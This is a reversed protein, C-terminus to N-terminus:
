QSRVAADEALVEQAGQPPPERPRFDRYRPTSWIHELHLYYDTLTQARTSFHIALDHLPLGALTLQTVGSHKLVHPTVWPLGANAAVKAFLASIRSKSIQNGDRDHVVFWFGKALDEEEWVPM